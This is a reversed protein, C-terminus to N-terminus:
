RTLRFTDSFVKLNISASGFQRECGIIYVRNGVRLTVMEGRYGKTNEIVGQTAPYGAVTTASTSVVHGKVSDAASAFGVGADFEYESEHGPGLDFYIVEFTVGGNLCQTTHMTRSGLNTNEESADERPRQPFKVSYGGASSTYDVWEASSNVDAGGVILPIAALALILLVVGGAIGLGIFLGKNSKAPLPAYGGYQQPFPRGPFPAPYSAGQQPPYPAPYPARQPMPQGPPPYAAVPRAPIGRPLAGPSADGIAQGTLRNHEARCANCSIKARFYGEPVEIPAGCATCAFTRQAM